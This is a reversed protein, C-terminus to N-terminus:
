MDNSGCKQSMKYIGLYSQTQGASLSWKIDIDHTKLKIYHCNVLSWVEKVM